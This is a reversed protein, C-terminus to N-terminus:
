RATTGAEGTGIEQAKKAMQRSLEAAELPMCRREFRAEAQRALTSTQAMEHMETDLARQRDGSTSTLTKATEIPPM